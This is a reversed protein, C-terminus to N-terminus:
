TSNYTNMGEVQLETSCSVKGHENEAQVTYEGVDEPKIDYIQLHNVNDDEFIVYRGDDV